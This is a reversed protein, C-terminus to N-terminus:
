FWLKLFYVHQVLVSPYSFTKLRAMQFMSNYFSLVRCWFFCCCSMSNGLELKELFFYYYVREHFHKTKTAEGGLNKNTPFITSFPDALSGRNLWPEKAKKELATQSAVRAPPSFRAASATSQGVAKATLAAQSFTRHFVTAHHQAHTLIRIHTSIMLKKEDSTSPDQQFNSQYTSLLSTGFFFPWKLNTTLHQLGLM